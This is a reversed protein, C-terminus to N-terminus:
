YTSIIVSEFRLTGVTNDAAHRKVASAPHLSSCQTTTFIISSTQCTLAALQGRLLDARVNGVQATALGAHGEDGRGRVVVDVGDLVERLEDVVEVLHRVETELIICENPKENIMDQWVRTSACVTSHITSQIPRIWPNSPQHFIHQHTHTRHLVEAPLSPCGGKDACRLANSGDKCAAGVAFTLTFSTAWAPMPVTADPTAFAFASIMWILPCSPPVPAEGMEEMLCAPPGKSIPRTSVCM